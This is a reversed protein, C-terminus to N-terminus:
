GYYWCIFSSVASVGVEDDFEMGCFFEELDFEFIRMRLVVLGAIEWRLFQM